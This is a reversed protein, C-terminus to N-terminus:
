PISNGFNAMIAQNFMNKGVDKEFKGQKEVLVGMIQGKVGMEEIQFRYCDEYVVQTLDVVCNYRMLKNM